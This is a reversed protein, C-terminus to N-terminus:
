TCLYFEFTLRSITVHYCDKWWVCHLCLSVHMISECYSNCSMYMYNFILYVHFQWWIFLTFMSVWIASNRTNPLHSCTCHLSSCVNAVRSTIIWNRVCQGDFRESGTTAYLFFDGIFFNLNRKQLKSCTHEIIKVAKLHITVGNLNQRCTWFLLYYYYYFNHLRPIFHDSLSTAM